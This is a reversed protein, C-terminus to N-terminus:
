SFTTQEHLVEKLTQNLCLDTIRALLHYFSNPEAHVLRAYFAPYWQSLHDQLFSGAEQYKNQDLLLALFALEISIHDPSEDDVASELGIKRYMAIAEDYGQQRLLGSNQIYISAYPPAAVGGPGNIFLRVYEAQLDTSSLLSLDEGEQNPPSLDLDANLLQLTPALTAPADDEPYTFCTSLFHYPHQPEM